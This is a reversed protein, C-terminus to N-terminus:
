SGASFVSCLGSGLGRDLRVGGSRGLAIAGVLDLLGAGPNRAIRDPLEFPEVSPEDSAPLSLTGYAKRGEPFPHDPPCLTIATALLSFSEHEPVFDAPSDDDGCVVAVPMGFTLVLGWAETLAAAVTDYDASLSTTFNRNGASISAVGSAASHVSTAFGMPSMEEGRWMQDLLGIMTRAEGLTSGFVTPIEGPDAGAELVSAVCADVMARSLRSARRRSRKEISAGSPNPPASFDTAAGREGSRFQEVNGVGPFWLGIGGVLLRPVTGDTIQAESNYATTM